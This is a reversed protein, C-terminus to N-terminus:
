GGEGEARCYECVGEGEDFCDQCLVESCLDCSCSENDEVMKECDWCEVKM